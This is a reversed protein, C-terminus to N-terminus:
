HLPTYSIRGVPISFSHKALAFDLLSGAAVVPMESLDEAFWRLKELLQPAAQIEDLFLITQSPDIKGGGATEINLLIEQPNNSSFLSKLEPQKEFNMEILRRQEIRALDRILWTKGVQRAGRIVLPKRTKSHLWDQLFATRDRKM